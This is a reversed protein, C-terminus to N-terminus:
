ELVRKVKVYRGKREPTQELTAEREQEDWEEIEDERLVNELGTVQATPLINVTDAEGLQDIYSLVNSLQGGYKELEEDTLKLRALTAIHQIQNKSFKM